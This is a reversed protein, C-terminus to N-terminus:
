KVSLGVAFADASVGLALALGMTFELKLAGSLVKPLLCLLDSEEHIRVRNRCEAKRM